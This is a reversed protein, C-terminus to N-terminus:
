TKTAALYYNYNLSYVGNDNYFKNFQATLSLPACGWTGTDDAITDIVYETDSNSIKCNPFFSKIVAIEYDTLTQSFNVSELENFGRIDAIDSYHAPFLNLKKAFSFSDSIKKLDITTNCWIEVQNLDSSINRISFYEGVDVFDLDVSYVEYSENKYIENYLWDFIECINDINKNWAGSKKEFSICITQNENDIDVSEFKWNNCYCVNHIIIYKEIGNRFLWVILFISVLTTIISVFTIIVAKKM